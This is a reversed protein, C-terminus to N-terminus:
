SRAVNFVTSAKMEQSCLYIKAFGIVDCIGCQITIFM